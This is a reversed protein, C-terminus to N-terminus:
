RAAGFVQTWYPGGSKVVGVGIERFSCNLINARHGSSNMWAQMVSAATPQGKAINEGYTSWRYGAATIRDGPSKGDPNTHDFFGRRAMDASHGQAAATLKSNSTLARCGNKAREKNVLSIVQAAVGGAAPASPAKSRAPSSGAPRSRTARPTPTRPKVTKKPKQTSRKPSPTESPSPEATDLPAIPSSSPSVTTDSAAPSTGSGGDFAGSAVGAIGGIVLVGAAGAATWAAARGSVTRQQRRRPGPGGPRPPLPNSM